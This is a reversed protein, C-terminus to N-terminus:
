KKAFRVSRAEERWNVAKSTTSIAESFAIKSFDPILVEKEANITLQEGKFDPQSFFIVKWGKPVILSGIFNLCDFNEDCDDRDCDQPSDDVFRKARRADSDDAFGYRRVLAFRCKRKRTQRDIEAHAYPRWHSPKKRRM